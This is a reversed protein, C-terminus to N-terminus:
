FLAATSTTKTCEKENECPSCYGFNDKEYLVECGETQNTSETTTCSTNALVELNSSNNRVFFTSRFDEGVFELLYNDEDIVILNVESFDADIKSLQSLKKSYKKLIETENVRILANGGKVEGIKKWKDKVPNTENLFNEKPSFSLLLGLSLILTFTIKFTKKCM